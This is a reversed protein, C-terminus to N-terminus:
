DDVGNRHWDYQNELEAEARDSESRGADHEASFTSSNRLYIASFIGVVITVFPVKFALFLVTFCIGFLAPYLMFQDGSSTQWYFLAYVWWAVLAPLLVAAISVRGGLMPWRLSRCFKAVAVISLLMICGALVSFSLGGHRSTVTFLGSVLQIQNVSYNPETSKALQYVVYAIALPGNVPMLNGSKREVWTLASTCIQNIVKMM